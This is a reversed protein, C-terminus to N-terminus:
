FMSAPPDEDAEALGLARRLASAVWRRVPEPHDHMMEYLEAGEVRISLGMRPLHGKVSTVRSREFYLDRVVPRAREWDMIPGAMRFRDTTVEFEFRSRRGAVTLGTVILGVALLPALVPLLSKAFGWAGQTRYVWANALGQSLLLVSLILVAGIGASGVSRRWGAPPVYVYTRQPAQEFVIGYQQPMAAYALTPPRPEGEAM